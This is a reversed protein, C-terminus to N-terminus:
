KPWEFTFTTGSGLTSEVNITCNKEDLIKKVISLGVGTSEITDRAQLTQFIQFIRDFYEEKIGPGNDQVSFTFHDSKENCVVTILPNDKDNYKLANSILNSFVQFLAIRETQLVPFEGELSLEASSGSFLGDKIELLLDKTDVQETEHELRGARSYELIGNILGEMRSVRGRLLGFNEKIDGDLKGDLDEEIWESLNNIARLPAKLDHSVIYAFQDLEKNISELDKAYRTLKEESEKQLSLDMHVGIAGLPQQKNNYVPTASILAWITSGDKRKLKQEYVNTEGKMRKKLQKSSVEKGVDDLFIDAAIKGTLEDQQYGTLACFGPFAKQIVGDNDVELLGLNLNELLTRYKLESAELEKQHNVRDTIDRYQWLHGYYVSDIIIPIYDREMISGDAFHIVEETVKKREDLIDDLRQVFEKPNAMLHKSENASNSCDVGILDQPKAPISFYKLFLENTLVINRNQDEVLVGCNLNELLSNLRVNIKKIEEAREKEETIESEVEIFGIYKGDDSWLPDIAIRLWYPLGTKSYNLIGGKFPEKAALKKGMEAIVAKDSKKGQLFSGPSKGLVEETQYGTLETFAENVYTIEGKEDTIVILNQTKQAVLALRKNTEQMKYSEDIDTLTGTIHGSVGPERNIRSHIEVWKYIGNRTKFRVTAKCNDKKGTNLDGCNASFVHTDEPHLYEKVERGIADRVAFGTIGEFASNLFDWRGDESVQFIVESVTDIIDSLRNSLDLAEQEKTDAFSHLNRNSAFLEKLSQDLIRESRKLDEDFEHYAADIAKLFKEPIDADQGLKRLQRKLLKHMALRKTHYYDHNPQATRM